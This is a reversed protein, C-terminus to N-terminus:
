VASNKRILIQGGPDVFRQWNFVSWATFARALSQRTSADERKIFLDAREALNCAQMLYSFGIKDAGDAIHRLSLIQAAQITTLRPLNVSEIEWLRKAEAMFAYSETEGAEVVRCSASRERIVISFLERAILASPSPVEGTNEPWSSVSASALITNM